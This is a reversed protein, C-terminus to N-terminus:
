PGSVVDFDLQNQEANAAAFETIQTDFLDVGARAAARDSRSPDVRTGVRWPVRSAPGPAQVQGLDGKPADDHTIRRAAESATM